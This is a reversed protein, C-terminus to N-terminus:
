GTAALCIMAVFILTAGITIRSRADALVSSAERPADLPADVATLATLGPADQTTSAIDLTAGGPPLSFGDRM